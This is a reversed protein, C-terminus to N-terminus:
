LPLRQKLLSKKKGPKATRRLFGIQTAALGLLVELQQGKPAAALPPLGVPRDTVADWEEVLETVKDYVARPMRMWRSNEDAPNKETEYGM